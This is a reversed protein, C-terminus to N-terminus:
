GIAVPAARLIDMGAMKASMEDWIATVEPANSAQDLADASAWTFVEIFSTVGQGDLTRWVQAPTSTAFGLRSLTPWHKQILAEAVDENGPQARYMVLVDLTGQPNSAM